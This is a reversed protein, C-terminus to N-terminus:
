KLALSSLKNEIMSNTAKNEKNSFFHLLPSHNNNTSFLLSDEFQQKAKNILKNEVLQVVDEEKGPTLPPLLDDCEIEMEKLITLIKQSSTKTTNVIENNVKPPPLDNSVSGNTRALLDDVRKEDFLSQLAPDTKLGILWFHISHMTTLDIKRFMDEMLQLVNSLFEKVSFKDGHEMLLDLIESLYATRIMSGDLKKSKVLDVLGSFILSFWRELNYTRMENSRNEKSLTLVLEQNPHQEFFYKAQRIIQNLLCEITKTTLARDSYKSLSGLNIFTYAIAHIQVEPRNGVTTFPMGKDYLFNVEAFLLSVFKQYIIKLKNDRFDLSRQYFFFLKLLKAAQNVSFHRKSLHFFEAELENIHRTWIKKESFIREITTFMSDMYGHSHFPLSHKYKDQHNKSKTAVQKRKM